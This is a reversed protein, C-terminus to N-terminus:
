SVPFSPSRAGQQHIWGVERFRHVGPSLIDDGQSWLDCSLLNAGRSVDDLHRARPLRRPRAGQGQSLDCRALSLSIPRRPCPQSLGRGPHRAAQLHAVGALILHRRHRTVKRSRRGGSGGKVYAEVVVAHLARLPAGNKTTRCPSAPSRRPECDSACGIVFSGAPLARQPRAPVREGL